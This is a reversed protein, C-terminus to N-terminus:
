KKVQMSVDIVFVEVPNAGFEEHLITEKSVCRWKRTITKSEDDRKPYGLKLHIEDYQRGILRNRWYSTALRLEVTKKGDRIQEWWKRKLHLTLINM